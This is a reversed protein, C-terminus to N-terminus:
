VPLYPCLGTHPAAPCRVRKYGYDGCTTCIGYHKQWTGDCTAMQVVQIGNHAVPSGYTYWTSTLDCYSCQCTNKYKMRHYPENYPVYGVPETVTNAFDFYHEHDKSGKDRSGNNDAVGYSPIAVFLLLMVLVISLIKKM